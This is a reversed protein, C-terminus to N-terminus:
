SALLISELSRFGLREIPIKKQRAQMSMSPREFATLVSRSSQSAVAFPSVDITSRSPSLRGERIRPASMTLAVM